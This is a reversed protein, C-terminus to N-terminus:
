RVTALGFNRLDPIKLFNVGSHRPFRQQAASIASMKMAM